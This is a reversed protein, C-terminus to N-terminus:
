RSAEYYAQGGNTLTTSTVDSIFKQRMKIGTQTTTPTDQKTSLGGRNNCRAEYSYSRRTVLSIEISVKYQM